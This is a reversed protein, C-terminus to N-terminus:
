WGGPAQALALREPEPLLAGQFDHTGLSSNSVGSPVEV